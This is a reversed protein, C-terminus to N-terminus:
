GALQAKLAAETEGGVVRLEDLLPAALHMSSERGVMELQRCLESIRLAGISGSAAKLTHATRWLLETDGVTYGDHIRALQTPLDRLFTEMLDTFEEEMLERLEVVTTEDLIPLSATNGDHM